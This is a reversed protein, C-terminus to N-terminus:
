KGKWLDDCFADGGILIQGVKIERISCSWSGGKGTRKLSGRKKNTRDMKNVKDKDIVM